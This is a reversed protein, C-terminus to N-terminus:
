KLLIYKDFFSKEIRKTLYLFNEASSAHITSDAVNETYFCTWQTGRQERNDSYIKLGRPYITCNYVIQLDIESLTDTKLNSNKMLIKLNINTM